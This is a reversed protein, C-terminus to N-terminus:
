HGLIGYPYGIFGTPYNFLSGEGDIVEIRWVCAYPPMEARVQGEGEVPIEEAMWRLPHDHSLPYWCLRASVIGDPDSMQLELVRPAVWEVKQPMPFGTTSIPMDERNMGPPMPPGPEPEQPEAVTVAHYGEFPWYATRYDMKAIFRYELTGPRIDEAPIVWLGGDDAETVTEVEEDVKYELTGVADTAGLIVFSMGLSDGTEKTSVPSHRIVLGSINELEAQLERLRARDAEIERLGREWTFEMTHMRSPIILPQYQKLTIEVLRNWAEAAADLNAEAGDLYRTLDNHYYVSLWTAAFRKESHYETLAQIAQLDRILIKASSGGSTAGPIGCISGDMGFSPNDWYDKEGSLREAYGRVPELTEPDMTPVYIFWDITRGNNGTELEPAYGDLTPSLFHAAPIKEMRESLCTLGDYLEDLEEATGDFSQNFAAKIWGESGRFPNKGYV